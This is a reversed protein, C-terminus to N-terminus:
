PASAAPDAPAPVAAPLRLYFLCGSGARTRVDLTGGFAAAIRRAVALGLGAGAVGNRRAHEGRFFPEFVRSRDELTLGLGRDEVGLMVSDGERWARVVIPTDPPSYKCANEILNDVAQALLPPHARVVLPGGNALRAHLDTVRPHDAWRRIQDPVWDALDLEGPVPGDDEPQALLLLSDVIGRLRLGEDRVRELVRRYQEPPRDRRLAVQVQGMLAALPTRLQHSANGAFRRQDDYSDHLRVFAEHLRELLDNFAQGLADLEDGTGPIPLRRGLDAATMATAANAMRTVPRLARRGLWRGAALSLVWVGVSLGALTLGLRDLTREVPAPSLGALLVLVRYQVEYGPRDNPHGRGRKLLDDLHLRRAALRWGGAAGFVSGDGPISPWSSPTWGAPFDDLSANASHDVLVGDSDRVVWRVGGPGPEGGLRLQRDAPEWELGGPEIDVSAELTDLSRLLREDLQGMLYSHALIYLTGSFGAVVLALAALFFASLRTSLTM